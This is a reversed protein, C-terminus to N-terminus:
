CLRKAIEPPIRWCLGEHSSIQVNRPGARGQIAVDFLGFRGRFSRFEEWSIEFNVILDVQELLSENHLEDGAIQALHSLMIRFLALAQVKNLSLPAAPLHGVFHAPKARWCSCKGEIMLLVAISRSVLRELHPHNHM